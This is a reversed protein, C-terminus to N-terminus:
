RLDGPEPKSTSAGDAAAASGCLAALFLVRRCSEQINMAWSTGNTKILRHFWFFVGDTSDRGRWTLRFCGRRRGTHERIKGPRPLIRLRGSLINLEKRLHNAEPLTVTLINTSTPIADHEQDVAAVPFHM